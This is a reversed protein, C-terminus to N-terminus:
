AGAQLKAATLLGHLDMLGKAKDREGAFGGLYCDIFEPRRIYELTHERARDLAKGETFCGAACLRLMAVGNEVFDRGNERLRDFLRTEAILKVAYNDLQQAAKAADNSSLGAGNIRRQLTGLRQLREVPTGKGGTYAEEHLPSVILPLLYDAMRHKNSEGVLNEALDLLREVKALPGDLEILLESVVDATLMAACRRRISTLSDDGGIIGGDAAHLRHYLDHLARSEAVLDGSTLRKTGSLKSVLRDKLASRCDKFRGSAILESLLVLPADANDQETHFRGHYLGTMPVLVAVLDPQKGFIERTARDALIVDAIFLDVAALLFEHDCAQVLALLYELKEPWTKLSKLQRTIACNLLYDGDSTAQLSQILDPLAALDLEPARGSKGLERLRQGALEVLKFLERMREHASKDGEKSQVLAVRQIAHQLLTGTSELRALHEPCHMLEAITIGWREIHDGLLRRITVRSDYSYFDEVKWCFVSIRNDAALKSRKERQGEIYIQREWFTGSAEDFRTRMVKVASHRGGRMTRQAEYIAEQEQDVVCMLRWGSGNAVLVEFSVDETSM